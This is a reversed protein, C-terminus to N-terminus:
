TDIDEGNKDRKCIYVGEELYVNLYNKLPQIIDSSRVHDWYRSRGTSVKLVVHPPLFLQFVLRKMLVKNCFLHIILLSMYKM